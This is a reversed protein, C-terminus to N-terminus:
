NKIKKLITNRKQNIESKLKLKLIIELRNLKCRVTPVHNSDMWAREELSLPLGGGEGLRM